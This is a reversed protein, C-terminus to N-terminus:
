SFKAEEIKNEMNAALKQIAMLGVLTKGTATAMEIIGRFNSKCWCDFAIKQHGWPRLLVVPFNVVRRLLEKGYEKRLKNAIKVFKQVADESSSALESFVELIFVVCRPDFFRGLGDVFDTSMDINKTRLLKKFFLLIPKIEAVGLYKDPKKSIQRDLYWLCERFENFQTKLRELDVKRGIAKLREEIIKSFLDYFYREAKSHEERYDPGLVPEFIRFETYYRYIMLIDDLLLLSQNPPLFKLKQNCFKEFTYYDHHFPDLSGYYGKQCKSCYLSGPEADRIQCKACKVM